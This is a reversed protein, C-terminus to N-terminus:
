PTYGNLAAAVLCENIRLSSAQLFPFTYAPLEIHPNGGIVYRYGRAELFIRIADDLAQGEFRWRFEAFRRVNEDEIRAPDGSANILAQLSIAESYTGVGPYLFKLLSSPIRERLISWTDASFGIALRCFEDESIDNIVNATL